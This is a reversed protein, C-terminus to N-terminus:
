MALLQDVIGNLATTDKIETLRWIRFHARQCNQPSVTEGGVSVVSGLSFASPEAIKQRQPFFGLLLTNDLWNRRVWLEASRFAAPDRPEFVGAVLILPFLVDLGLQGCVSRFDASGQEKLREESSKVLMFAFRFHAEHEFIVRRYGESLDPRWVSYSGEPGLVEALRTKLTRQRVAAVLDDFLLLCNKHFQDMQQLPEIEQGM